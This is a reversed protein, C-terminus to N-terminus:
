HREILGYFQNREKQWSNAEVDRAHAEIDSLLLAFGSRRLTVTDAKRLADAQLQADSNVLLARSAMGGESIPLSPLNRHESGQIRIQEEIPHILDLGHDGALQFIKQKATVFLLESGSASPHYPLN